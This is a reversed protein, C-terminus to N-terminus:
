APTAEATEAAKAASVAATAERAAKAAERQARGAAKIAAREEETLADWAADVAAIKAAKAAQVAAQNAAVEAKRTPCKSIGHDNVGCSYCNPPPQTCDPSEHGAEGCRFCKKVAYIAEIRAPDPNPCDRRTHGEIGCAICIVPERCHQARHGELKPPNWRYPSRTAVVAEAWLQATTSLPRLSVPPLRLVQIRAGRVAVAATRLRLASFM